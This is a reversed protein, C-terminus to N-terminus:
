VTHCVHLFLNVFCRWLVGLCALCVFDASVLAWVSFAVNQYLIISYHLKLFILGISLNFDSLRKRFTVSPAQVIHSPL